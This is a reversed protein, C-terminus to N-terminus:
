SLYVKHTWTSFYETIPVDVEIVYSAEENPNLVVTKSQSYTNGKETMVECWITVNKQMFMNYNHVTVVFQGNGSITSDADEYVVMAGPAIVLLAGLLAIVVFIGVILLKSKMRSRFSTSPTSGMNSLGAGCAECFSAEEVNPFRCAPCTSM